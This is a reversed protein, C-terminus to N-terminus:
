SKKLFVNLFFPGLVPRVLNPKSINNDITVILGRELTQFIRFKLNELFDETGKIVFDSAGARMTQIIIESDSKGTLM